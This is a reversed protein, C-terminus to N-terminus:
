ARRGRRRRMGLTTAAGGVVVLGIGVVTLSGTPTGTVALPQDSHSPTPTATVSVPSSSASHSPAPSSTRPKSPPASTPPPPPPSTPRAAVTVTVTATDSGFKTSAVYTFTDTGVFSDDPTYIAYPGDTSTSGHGASGVSQLHLPGGGNADDNALVHITVGVGSDTSASDNNATPPPATVTIRVTAVSSGNATTLRYNFKDHGVFGDNPTYRITPGAPAVHHAVGRGRLGPEIVQASGHGPDTTVSISPPAGKTDDNSLVDIDVPNPSETTASDDVAVPPLGPDTFTQAGVDEACSPPFVEGNCSPDGGPNVVLEHTDIRLNPQVTTQMLQVTDGPAAYYHDPDEGFGTAPTASGGRVSSGGGFTCYTETSGPDPPVSTTCTEDNVVAGSQDTEVIHVDSGLTSTGEPVFAGSKIQVGVRFKQWGFRPSIGLNPRPTHAGSHGRASQPDVPAHSSVHQPPQAAALPAVALAAAAGAVGVGLVKPSMRRRVCRQM